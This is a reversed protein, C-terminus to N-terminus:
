RSVPHELIPRALQQSREAQIAEDAVALYAVAPTPVGAGTSKRLPLLLLTAVPLSGANPGRPLHM